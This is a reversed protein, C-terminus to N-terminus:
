PFEIYRGVGAAAARELVLSSLAIDDMAIGMNLFMGLLSMSVDLLELVGYDNPGLYRTYVPLLLFGLVKALVAGLGYVASHRVATQIEAAVSGTQETEVM